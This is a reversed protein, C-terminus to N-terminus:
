WRDELEEKSLEELKEWVRNGDEGPSCAPCADIQQRLSDSHYAEWMCLSVLVLCAVCLFMIMERDPNVGM